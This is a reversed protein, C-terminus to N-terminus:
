MVTFEKQMGHMFHPKGDKADPSFCVLGYHGPPFSGEIVVTAGPAIETVGGFAEAPAPKGAPNFAWALFDKIGKGSQLRTMVVMHPQPAANTVAIVHRGRTLPHSFRFDYDSLTLIMDAKPLPAALSSSTSAPSVTFGKMMGKMYHPMPDPGPVECFALYTGPALVLTANGEAGPMIANPGGVSHMWAPRLGHGAQIIAAMADAPTKGQDLKVVSLHHGQKGRNLLRFTTLGGPISPPLDFAFDNAIVDVVNSGRPSFSARQLSASQKAMTAGTAPTQANALPVLILAGVLTLTGLAFRRGAVAETM